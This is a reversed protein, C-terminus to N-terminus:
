RARTGLGVIAHVHNPMVVFEDLAVGDLCKPLARVQEAVAEGLSNLILSEDEVRGLICRKEYTCTTVLYFGDAAYDYYPLRLPKRAYV